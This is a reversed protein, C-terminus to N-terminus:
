PLEGVVPHNVTYRNMAVTTSNVMTPSIIANFQAQAIQNFTLDQQRSNPFPSGSSTDASALSQQSEDFYEGTVAMSDGEPSKMVM